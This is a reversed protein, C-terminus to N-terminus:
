PLQYPGGRAYGYNSFWLYIGDGSYIGPDAKGDGDFDAALPVAGDFGCAYPGVQAYGVSSLWASWNGNLYAAPDALGDGDFDAALRAKAPSIQACYWTDM